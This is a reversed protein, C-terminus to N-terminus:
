REVPRFLVTDPICKSATCKHTHRWSCSFLLFSLLIAPVKLWQFIFHLTKVEAMFDSSGEQLILHRWYYDEGKFIRWEFLLYGFIVIM